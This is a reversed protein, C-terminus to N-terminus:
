FTAATLSTANAQFAYRKVIPQTRRRRRRRRRRRTKRDATDPIIFRYEQNSFREIHCFSTTLEAKDLTNMYSSIYSNM